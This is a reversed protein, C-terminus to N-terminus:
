QEDHDDKLILHLQERNLRSRRPGEPIEYKEEQECVKRRLCAKVWEFKLIWCGNLIGLMCKLTSQVADGPVVVHTVTSDFETYKKAKLIAALESLMKQQESSLGSGILVLPGDRRQGTNM